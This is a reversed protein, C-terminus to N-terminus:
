FVEFMILGISVFSFLPSNTTVMALSITSFDLLLSWIGLLIFGVLVIVLYNSMLTIDLTLVLRYLFCIAVCTMPQM